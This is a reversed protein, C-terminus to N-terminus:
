GGLQPFIGSLARLEGGFLLPVALDLVLGVGLALLAAAASVVVLAAFLRLYANAAVGALLGRARRAGRVDVVPVAATGVRHDLTTM